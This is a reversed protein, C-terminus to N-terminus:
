AYNKEPVMLTSSTFAIVYESGDEYCHSIIAGIEYASADAALKLPHSSDYHASVPAEMIKQKAEDFPKNCM